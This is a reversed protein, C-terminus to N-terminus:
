CAPPARLDSGLLVHYFLEPACLQMYSALLWDVRDSLPKYEKNAVPYLTFDCLVCHHTNGSSFVTDSAPVKETHDSFFFHLPLWVTVGSISLIWLWIVIISYQVTKKVHRIKVFIFQFLTAFIAAIFPAFL